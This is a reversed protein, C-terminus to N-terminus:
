PNVAVFDKQLILNELLLFDFIAEILATDASLRPCRLEPLCCSVCFALSLSLLLALWLCSLCPSAFIM